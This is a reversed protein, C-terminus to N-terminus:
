LRDIDLNIACRCGIRGINFPQAKLRLLVSFGSFVGTLFGCTQSSFNALSAGILILSNL